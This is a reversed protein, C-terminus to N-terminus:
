PDLGAALLHLRPFVDGSASGPDTWAARAGRLDSLTQYRSDVRVVLAARYAAVGARECVAVLEGVEDVQAQILPPMWALEIHRQLFRELLARYDYAVHLTVGLSTSAKLADM